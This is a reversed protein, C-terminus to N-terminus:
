TRMSRRRFAARSWDLGVWGCSALASPRLCARYSYMASFAHRCGPLASRAVATASGNARHRLVQLALRPDAGEQKSVDSFNHRRLLHAVGAPVLDLIGASQPFKPVFLSPRDLRVMIRSIKTRSLIPQYRMWRLLCRHAEGSVDRRLQSCLHEGAIAIGTLHATRGSAIRIVSRSAWCSEVDTMDFGLTVTPAICKVIQFCQATVTVLSCLVYGWFRGTPQPQEGLNPTGLVIVLSGCEIPQAVLKGFHRVFSVNGRTAWHSCGNAKAINEPTDPIPVSSEDSSM